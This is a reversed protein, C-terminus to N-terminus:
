AAQPRKRLSVRRSGCRYCFRAGMIPYQTHCKHCSPSSPSNGAADNEETTSSKNNNITKQQLTSSSDSTNDCSSAVFSDADDNNNYNNNEGSHASLSIRSLLLENQHYIEDVKRQLDRLYSLDNYSKSHRLQQRQDGNSIMIEDADSNIDAQHIRDEETKYNHLEEESHNAVLGQTHLIEYQGSGNCKYRTKLAQQNQQQGIINEKTTKYQQQQRNIAMTSKSSYKSLALRNQASELALQKAKAMSNAQRHNASTQKGNHNTLSLNSISKRVSVPANAGQRGVGSQRSNSNNNTTGSRLTINMSNASGRGLPVARQSIPLPVRATGIGSSNSSSAGSLSANRSARFQQQEVPGGIARTIQVPGLPRAQLTRTQSRERNASSKRHQVTAGNITTPKAAPRGVVVTDNDSDQATNSSNDEHQQQQQGTQEHEGYRNGVEALHQKYSNTPKYHIRYKYRELARQKELSIRPKNAAKKACWPVHRAATHPNFQRQCTDCRVFGIKSSNNGGAHQQNSQHNPQQNLQHQPPPQNGGITMLGDTVHQEPM